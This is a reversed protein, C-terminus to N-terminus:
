GVERTLDVETRSEVRGWSDGHESGGCQCVHQARSRHYKLVLPQNERDWVGLIAKRRPAEHSLQQDILHSQTTCRKWVEVGNTVAHENSHHNGGGYAPESALIL